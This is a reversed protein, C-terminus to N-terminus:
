AASRLSRRAAMQYFSELTEFRYADFSLGNHECLRLVAERMDLRPLIYYDRITSNGEEMRIAVTVDPKLATDLRLKWRFSGASTQFCRAIVIAATFEGNITLLDTAADQVIKGGAATLGGCSGTSKSIATIMTLNSDPSRM